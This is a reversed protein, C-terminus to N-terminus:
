YMVDVPKGSKEYLEHLEESEEDHWIYRRCCMTRLTELYRHTVIKKM